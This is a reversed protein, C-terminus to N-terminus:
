NPQTYPIGKEEALWLPLQMQGTDWDVSLVQSKPVWVEREDPLVLLHAKPSEYKERDFQIWVGTKARRSM